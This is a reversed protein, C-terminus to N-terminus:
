GAWRRPAARGRGATSRSWGTRLGTLRWGGVGRDVDGGDAEFAGLEVGALGQDEGHVQAGPFGHWQVHRVHDGRGRLVTRAALLDVEEVPDRSFGAAWERQGFFM